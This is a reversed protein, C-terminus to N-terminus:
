LLITHLHEIILLFISMKLKAYDLLPTTKLSNQRVDFVFLSFILATM